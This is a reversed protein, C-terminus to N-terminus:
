RADVARESAVRATPAVVPPGGRFVAAANLVTVALFATAVGLHATVVFANLETAVAVIGLAAQLVVLEFGLMTLDRVRTWRRHRWWVLVLLALVLFGEIWAAVRHATEIAAAHPDSSSGCAILEPCGLGSETHSVYGGIVIVAWAGFVSALALGKLLRM